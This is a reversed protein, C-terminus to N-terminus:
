TARASPLTDRMSDLIRPTLTWGQAGILPVFRVDAILHERYETESVRTVRVLDQSHQDAGVPIVLRGGIALQSRLADPVAPSGAAVAIADYPAHEPWGLSGDGCCVHVNHYGLRALREGATSALSAIREITYVEGAILSLVAASYGSGTGVDLVREGGRLALAQVTVAVIYPQSITQGEGIPLPADDYAFGALGSPVFDERAVARFADLVVPDAIGRDALDVEVMRERSASQFPVQKHAM